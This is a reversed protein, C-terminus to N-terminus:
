VSGGWKILHVGMSGIKYYSTSFYNKLIRVEFISIHLSYSKSLGYNMIYNFIMFSPWLTVLFPIYSLIKITQFISLNTSITPIM